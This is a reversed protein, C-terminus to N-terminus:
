APQRVPEDIAISFDERRLTLHPSYYPDVALEAKWRDLMYLVEGRFRAQKRPDDDTGRSISERHYMEAFPTWANRYGRAAVKLCFDVDNFAIKLHTEDFGGVERYISKRVVLCAATVAAINQVLRLRGFYGDANRGAHKHSHGAVGGIGLIVGAHQVTENPYYLKAGVCGTKPRLALSAMEGLWDPSIVEIDNNILGVLEGRAEAVAFNNIASYNFPHPYRLIRATGSAALEAMYALAHPDDSNNDIILIEYPAYRTRAMISSVCTRLLDLGNHTPIILSVKPPPDPLAYRIRYWTTAPVETIEGAIGSREMHGALAKRANVVAYNKEGPKLAVSGETARWHYLIKPIHLISAPDIMEVIRLNIDYDQSGNFAERWGGAKVINAATHVTLHNFYNQGLFLEPNWDPKFYPDYRKGSADIKDEDSYIIQAHPHEALALAVEALAHPRLVDDHDLLAIHSGTALAFASNTAAAIHGNRERFCIKIRPERARWAELAPRIWPATSCDDAICLEWNPYVQSTVSGIAADLLKAPTNYVPMLVSIKPTHSLAAIRGQLVALGDPAFDRAAIWAVYRAGEGRNRQSSRGTEFAAGLRMARRSAKFLRRVDPKEEGANAGDRMARAAFTALPAPKLTFRRLRFVCPGEAPDLRLQRSPKWIYAFVKYMGSGPRRLLASVQQSFGASTQFYVRPEIQGELAEIELEVAVPGRIGRQDLDYVIFPDFGVARWVDDKRQIDHAAVARNAELLNIPAALTKGRLWNM